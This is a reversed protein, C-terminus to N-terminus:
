LIDNKTKNLHDEYWLPQLNTYHCAQKFESLNTLDFKCLAKIHDIQWTGPGSGHLTWNMGPQFKSELHLKLEQATCGLESISSGTKATGKIVTKIRHRLNCTIKFAPDNHYRQHYRQSHQEQLKQKNKLRYEKQYVAIAEKNKDQYIRKYSAIISHNKFLKRCEKCHLNLGNKRKRDIGFCILEKSIKCKTCTKM